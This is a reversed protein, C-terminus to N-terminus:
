YLPMRMYNLIGKLSKFTKNQKMTKLKESQSLIKRFKTKNNIM